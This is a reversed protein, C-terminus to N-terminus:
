KGALSPPRFALLMRVILLVAGTVLLLIWYVRPMDEPDDNMKAGKRRVTLVAEDM